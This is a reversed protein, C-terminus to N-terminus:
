APITLDWEGLGNAQRQLDPRSKADHAFSRSLRAAEGDHRPSMGDGFSGVPCSAPPPGRGDRLRDHEVIHSRPPARDGSPVTIPKAAGARRPTVMRRGAGLVSASSAVVAPRRLTSTAVHAPEVITVLFLPVLSACLFVGRSAPAPPPLSPRLAPVPAFRPRGDYGAALGAFFFPPQAARRQLGM